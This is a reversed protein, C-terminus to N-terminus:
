VLLITPLTLHTYSVAKLVRETQTEFEAAAIEVRSSAARTQIQETVTDWEDAILCKAYCKGPEANPPLDGPAQAFVATAVFLFAVSLLLDFKRMTSQIKISNHFFLTKFYNKTNM